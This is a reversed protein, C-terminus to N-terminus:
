PKLRTPYCRNTLAAGRLSPYLKTCFTEVQAKDAFDLAFVFWFVHGSPEQRGKLITSGKILVVTTDLKEATAKTATYDDLIDVAAFTHGGSRNTQQPDTIGIYKGSLQAVWQGHPDATTRGATALRELKARARRELETKSPTPTATPTPAPTPTPAASTSPPPSPAPSEPSVPSNVPSPTVPGTNTGRSRNLVFGTVAGGLLGIMLISVVLLVVPTRSPKPPPQVPWPSPSYSM